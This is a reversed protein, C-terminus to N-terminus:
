SSPGSCRARKTAPLSDGSQQPKFLMDRFSFVRKSKAKHMQAPGKFNPLGRTAFPAGTMWESQYVMERVREQELTVDAAAAAEGRTDEEEGEEKDEKVENAQQRQLEGAEVENKESEFVELKPVADSAAAAAQVAMKKRPPSQFFIAWQRKADEASLMSKRAQSLEECGRGAEEGRTAWTQRQEQEEMQTDGDGDGDDDYVDLKLKRQATSRRFAQVPNWKVARALNPPSRIIHGVAEVVLRDGNKFEDDDDDDDDDDDEDPESSEEIDDDTLVQPTYKRDDGVITGRGITIAAAATSNLRNGGGSAREEEAMAAPTRLPSSRSRFICFVPPSGRPQAKAHAKRRSPTTMLVEACDTSKARTLLPEKTNSKTAATGDVVTITVLGRKLDWKLDEKATASKFADVHARKMKDYLEQM